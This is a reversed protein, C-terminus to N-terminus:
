YTNILIPIIILFFINLLINTNYNNNLSNLTVFILFIIILYDKIIQLINCNFYNISFEEIKDIFVLEEVYQQM